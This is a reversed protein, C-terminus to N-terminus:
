LEDERVVRAPEPEPEPEQGRGRRRPQRPSGGTAGSIARPDPRVRIRGIQRVEADPTGGFGRIIGEANRIQEQTREIEASLQLQERPARGRAVLRGQQRARRERLETLDRQAGQLDKSM